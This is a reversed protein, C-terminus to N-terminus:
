NAIIYGLVFATLWGIVSIAASLGAIKEFDRSEETEEWEDAYKQFHPTIWANLFVGNLFIAAVLLMKVRFLPDHILLPNSLFLLLGTASLIFFGTWVLMSLVPALHGMWKATKPKFHLLSNLADTVLVAGFALIVGFLHSIRLFIDLSFEAAM